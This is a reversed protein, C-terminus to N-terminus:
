IAEVKVQTHQTSLLAVLTTIVIVLTSALFEIDTCEYHPICAQGVAKLSM